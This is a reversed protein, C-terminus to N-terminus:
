DKQYIRVMDEVLANAQVYPRQFLNRGVISGFGGGNQIAQLEELFSSDSKHAGGSFIIIRKGAFACSRVYAIRDEISAFPIKKETLLALNTPSEIHATPIKAKVIHAGLLCAMHVGYAVVDLSTEGKQSMSGRPYSWIVSFLGHAKAQHIIKQAKEIMTYTHPSGFYITLGIGSCKLRLADEVSATIAQNPDEKLLSTGSNMKLITPIKGSFSTAGSELLGLPAAFASLGTEVAFRYHYHPDLGDLNDSFSPLPGHEFGQDVALIALKGSGALRGHSFIKELNNKVAASEGEYASLISSINM